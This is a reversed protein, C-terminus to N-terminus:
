SNILHVYSVLILRTKRKKITKVNSRGREKCKTEEVEMSIGVKLGRRKM